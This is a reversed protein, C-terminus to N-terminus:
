NRDLSVGSARGVSEVLTLSNESESSSNSQLAKYSIVPIEAIPVDNSFPSSEAFIEGAPM